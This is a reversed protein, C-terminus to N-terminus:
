YSYSNSNSIQLKMDVLLDFFLISMKMSYTLFFFTAPAFGYGSGSTFITILGGGGGGKWFDQIRGQLAIILDQHGRPILPTRICVYCINLKTMTSINNDLGSARKTDITNKQLCLM